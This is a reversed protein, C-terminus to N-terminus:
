EVDIRDQVVPRLLNEVFEDRQEITEKREEESPVHDALDVRTVFGKEDLKREVLAMRDKLVYTERALSIVVKMVKDVVPHDLFYDKAM